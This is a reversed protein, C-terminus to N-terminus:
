KFIEWWRPFVSRRRDDYIRKIDGRLAGPFEEIFHYMHGLATYDDEPVSPLWSVIEGAAKEETEPLYYFVRDLHPGRWGKPRKTPLLVRVIKETRCLSTLTYHADLESGYRKEIDSSSVLCAEEIHKMVKSQDDIQKQTPTKRGM